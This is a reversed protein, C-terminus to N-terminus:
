WCCHGIDRAYKIWIKWASSSFKYQGCLQFGSPALRVRIYHRAGKETLQYAGKTVLGRVLELGDFLIREVQNHVRFVILGKRRNHDVRKLNIYIKSNTRVDFHVDRRSDFLIRVFSAKCGLCPDWQRTKKTGMNYDFIFHSGFRLPYTQIHHIWNPPRM